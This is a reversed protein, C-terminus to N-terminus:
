VKRGGETEEETQRRTASGSWTSGGTAQLLKLLVRIRDHVSTDINETHTHVCEKPIPLAFIYCSTHGAEEIGQSAKTEIPECTVAKM